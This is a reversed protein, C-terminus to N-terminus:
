DFRLMFVAVASIDICSSRDGVREVRGVTEAEPVLDTHAIAARSRALWPDYQTKLLTQPM